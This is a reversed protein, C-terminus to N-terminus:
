YRTIVLRSYEYITSFRDTIDDLPIKNTRLHITRCLQTIAKSADINDITTEILNAIFGTYRRASTAVTAAIYNRAIIDTYAYTTIICYEITNPVIWDM